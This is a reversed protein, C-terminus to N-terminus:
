EACQTACSPNRVAMSRKRSDSRRPMSASILSILMAALGKLFPHFGVCRLKLVAAKIEAVDSKLGSLEAKVAAMNTKLATVDIKLDSVGSKLGFMDGELSKVDRSTSAAWWIAVGLFAIAPWVNALDHLMDMLPVGM